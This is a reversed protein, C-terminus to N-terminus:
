VTFSNSILLEIRKIVKKDGLINMLEFIGPSITMGTLALRLVHIIGGAKVRKSEAFERLEKELAAASWDSCNKLIGLYEAFLPKIDPKWYKALGKEDYKEPDAFFYYGFETFDNITSVREKMLSVVNRLYDLNLADGSFNMSKLKEM